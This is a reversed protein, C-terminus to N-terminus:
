QAIVPPKANAHKPQWVETRDANWPVSAATAGHRVTAQGEIAHNIIHGTYEYRTPQGNVTVEVTFSVDNGTLRASQIKASRGEVALTGDLQQFNQNLALEYEHVTSGEKLQWRWKGAAQGPVVWYFV